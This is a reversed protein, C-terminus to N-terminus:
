ATFRGKTVLKKISCYRAVELSTLISRILIVGYTIGVSVKDTTSNTKLKPAPPQHSRLKKLLYMIERDLKKIQDEIEHSM